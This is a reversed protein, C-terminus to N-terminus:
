NKRRKQNFNQSLLHCNNVSFSRKFQVNIMVNIVKLKKEEISYKRVFYFGKTYLPKFFQFKFKQFGLLPFIDFINGM